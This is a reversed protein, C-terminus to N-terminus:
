HLSAKIIFYGKKKAVIEVVDYISQLKEIASPAGQKKQIVVWLEGNPLLHERSKEFISHVVKKGARIPPNSLIVAYKKGNLMEFLDSVFIHVNHVQNIEKNKHALEVARENIDVMDIKKTSLEKALAIGVPGYGCGIDLIEGSTKPMVFSEIM